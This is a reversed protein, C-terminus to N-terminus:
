ENLDDGEILDLNWYEENDYRDLIDQKLIERQEKTLEGM